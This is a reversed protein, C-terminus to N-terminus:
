FASAFGYKLIVMVLILHMTLMLRMAATSGFFPGGSFPRVSFDGDSSDLEKPQRRALVKQLLPDERERTNDIGPQAFALLAGAQPDAPQILPLSPSLFLPSYPPHSVLTRYELFPAICM